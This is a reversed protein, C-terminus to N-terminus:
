CGWEFPLSLSLWIHSSSSRELTKKDLTASTSVKLFNQTDWHNQLSILLTRRVCAFYNIKPGASIWTQWSKICRRIALLKSNALFSWFVSPIYVNIAVKSAGGICRYHDLLTMSQHHDSDSVIHCLGMHTTSCYFSLFTATRQLQSTKPM